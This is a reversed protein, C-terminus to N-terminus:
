KTSREPLRNVIISGVLLFSGLPYGIRIVLSWVRTIFDRLAPALENVPDVIAPAFFDLVAATALLVIGVVLMARAVESNTRQVTASM